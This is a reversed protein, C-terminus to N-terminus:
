RAGDGVVGSSSVFALAEKVTWSSPTIQDPRVRRLMGGSVKGATPFLVVTLWESGADDSTNAGTVLGITQIDDNPWQVWVVKDQPESKDSLLRNGVQEFSSTLGAFVPLQAIRDWIFVKSAFGVILIAVLALILVVLYSLLNPLDSLGTAQVLDHLWPMADIIQEFTSWVYWALACTLVGYVLYTSISAIRSNSNQMNM